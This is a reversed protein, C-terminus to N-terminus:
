VIQWIDRGIRLELEGKLQFCISGDQEVYTKEIMRDFLDKSFTELVGDTENLIRKIRRLEEICKEDEDENLLKVRRVRLETARKNAKDTKERYVIDSLVGNTYLSNYSKIQSTLSALERDIEGISDNGNMVKKRLLQLQQIAEDLVARQNQKLTNYMRIFAKQLEEDKMNPAHCAEKGIGKKSCGWVINDRNLKRYVWGCHRCYVRNSFFQRANRTRLHREKKEAMMRQVTEFDEKSIISVNANECYYMDAQGKNLRNRLPLQTPTYTKGMVYDGMYRENKLIWNIRGLTWIFDTTEHEQMYKVIANAGIGSKYLRFITRVNEAEEPVIVMERNVARFGYPMVANYYTGSEMKMRISTKMRKSHSLSEGQAFASKIYLMMESNMQGTDIRDNEFYVSVGCSNLERVSEICELSNRAFRQVSKVFVRDIKGNKADRMMRKFDERKCIATGTIGEDAYIDVLKMGENSRIFENYYQMQAFFSNLQDDKDTSVRCYAAVRLLTDDDEMAANIVQVEKLGYRM